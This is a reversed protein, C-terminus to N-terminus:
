KALREFVAPTIYNAPSDRFRATRGEIIKQGVDKKTTQQWELHARPKSDDEHMHEQNKLM